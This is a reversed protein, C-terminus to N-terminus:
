VKLVNRVKEFEQLRQEVVGKIDGRLLDREIEAKMRAQRSAQASWVSFFSPLARMIWRIGYSMSAKSLFLRRRLQLVCHKRWHSLM